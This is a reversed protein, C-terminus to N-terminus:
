SNLSCGEPDSVYPTGDATKGITITVAPASDHNCSFYQGSDLFGAHRTLWHRLRTLQHPDLPLLNNHHDLLIRMLRHCPTSASISPNNPLIMSM